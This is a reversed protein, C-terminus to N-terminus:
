LNFATCVFTIGIKDNVSKSKSIRSCSRGIFAFPFHQSNHFSILQITTSCFKILMLGGLLLRDRPFAL